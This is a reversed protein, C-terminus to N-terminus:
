GGMYLGGNVHIAEGTVFSAADSCLFAIVGAVEQPTGYRRLPTQQVVSAGRDALLRSTMPTAIVGPSVANVRTKPGLERALSRTLALVGGKSAGYHSHGLSAGMHAAMSTLTVISSNQKLHPLSARITYFVGDLNVSLTQRWADASMEVVPEDRYIGAATVVGDLAGFAEVALRVAEDCGASSSVDVAISRARAGLTGALPDLQAPSRDLLAVRAGLGHLLESVARGIGSAAGSILFHKGEFDTLLMMKDGTRLPADVILRCDPKV